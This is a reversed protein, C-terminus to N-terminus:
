GPMAIIPITIRPALAIVIGAKWVRIQRIHQGSRKRSKPLLRGRATRRRQGLKQSLGSCVVRLDRCGIM